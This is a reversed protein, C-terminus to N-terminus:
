LIELAWNMEIEIKSIKSVVFIWFGIFFLQTCSNCEKEITDIFEIIYVKCSIRWKCLYGWALHPMVSVYLLM